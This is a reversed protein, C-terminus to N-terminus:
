ARHALTGTLPAPYGMRLKEAIEDRTRLAERWGVVETVFYNEGGDSAPTAAEVTWPRRFLVRAPIAVALLLLVVVVDLVLLLLPLLLWWFLAGVVVMAVIVALGVLIDDALNGLFGDGGGGGGGGGTPLDLNPVGSSDGRRRRRWGGFRRALARWRPQWVVRVKWAVGDPSSTTITRM